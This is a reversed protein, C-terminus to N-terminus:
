SGAQKDIAEQLRQKMNLAEPNMNNMILHNNEYQDQNSILNKIIHKDYKM